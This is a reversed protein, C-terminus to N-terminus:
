KRNIRGNLTTWNVDVVGVRENVITWCGISANVVSLYRTIINFNGARGLCWQYYKVANYYFDTFQFAFESYIKSISMEM